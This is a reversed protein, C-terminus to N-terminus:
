EYDGYIDYRKPPEPAIEVEQSHIAYLESKLPSLKYECARRTLQFYAELTDTISSYVKTKDGVLSWRDGPPVRTAILELEEKIEKKMTEM